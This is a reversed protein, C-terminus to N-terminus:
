GIGMVGIGVCDDGLGIIGRGKGIHAAIAALLVHVIALLDAAHQHVDAEADTPRSLM